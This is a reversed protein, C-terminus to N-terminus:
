QRRRFISVEVGLIRVYLNQRDSFDVEFAWRGRYGVSRWERRSLSTALVSWPAFPVDFMRMWFYRGRDAM